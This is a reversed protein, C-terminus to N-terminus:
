PVVVPHMVGLTYNEAEAEPLRMPDLHSILQMAGAVWSFLGVGIVEHPASGVNTAVLAEFYLRDGQAPPWTVSIPFTHRFQTVEEGGHVPGTLASGVFEFGMQAMRDQLVQLDRLHDFTGVAGDTIRYSTFDGPVLIEDGDPSFVAYTPLEVTTIPLKEAGTGDANVRWLEGTSGVIKAYVLSQGDPAWAPTWYSTAASADNTVQIPTSTASPQIVIDFGGATSGSMYAFRRAAVPEIAIARHVKGPGQVRKRGATLGNVITLRSRGFGLIWTGSNDKSISPGVFDLDGAMLMSVQQGSLVDITYLGLADETGDAGRSAFLVNRPRLASSNFLMEEGSELLGCGVALLPMLLLTARIPFRLIAAASVRIAPM